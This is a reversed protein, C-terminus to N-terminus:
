AMSPWSFSHGKARCGCWTALQLRCTSGSSPWRAFGAQAAVTLSFEALPPRSAVPGYSSPGLGVGENALPIGVSDEGSAFFVSHPVWGAESGFPLWLIVFVCGSSPGSFREWSGLQLLEKM